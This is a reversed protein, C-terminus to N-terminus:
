PGLSEPVGLGTLSSGSRGSDRLLDWPGALVAPRGGTDRCSAHGDVQRGGRTSAERPEGRQM